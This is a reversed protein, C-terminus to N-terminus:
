EFGELVNLVVDDIVWFTSLLPVAGSLLMWGQGSSSDEIGEVATSIPTSSGGMTHRRRLPKTGADFSLRRGKFRM